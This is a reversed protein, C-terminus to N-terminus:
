ATFMTGLYKFRFVNKLKVGECLIDPRQGQQQVLKCVQVEEAALTGEFKQEKAAQTCAHKIYKSAAPLHVPSTVFTADLDDTTYTCTTLLKM